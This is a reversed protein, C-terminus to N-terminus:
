AGQAARGAGADARTSASFRLLVSFVRNFASAPLARHCLLLGVLLWAPYARPASRWARWCRWLAPLRYLAPHRDQIDSWLQAHRRNSVSRLMGRSDIRYLFLPKSVAVGFRGLSALRINFEWDEYGDRLSEDYGGADRWDAHRILMCYPLQNVFLQTFLNFRKALVGRKEGCLMLDTFAYAADSNRGLADVTAELFRPDLRDDCDLPLVLDARATAFGANRAAPLGRNGQRVIRVREAISDLIGLTAGDNSGDDVVVVDFDRFTQADLSDLAGLLHAGGNYCPIIVSVHAGEAM